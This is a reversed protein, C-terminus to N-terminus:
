APADPVERAPGDPRTWFRRLLDAALRPNELMWWHGLGPLVGVAAGARAAARRRSAADGLAADATALLVLGPRRRAAPLTRGLDVLVSPPASRYLRLVADGSVAACGPALAAAVAPPVGVSVLYAARRDPDPDTLAAVAAEGDGPTQWTRALRHWAFGPEFMGISDTCWSRLLDPRTTAVGLVHAGGWDHGVLDVPGGLAELEAVLWDRYAQPTGAFGPPVPAGFGPPALRVVDPRGLADVLPDWVATTEPNGHVLVVTM